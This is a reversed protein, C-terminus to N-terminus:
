IVAETTNFDSWLPNANSRSVHNSSEAAAWNRNKPHYICFRWDNSLFKEGKRKKGTTLHGFGEPHCNSSVSVFDFPEGWIFFVFNQLQLRCLSGSLPNAQLSRKNRFAGNLKLQKRQNLSEGCLQLFFCMGCCRITRTTTDAQENIREWLNRSPSAHM